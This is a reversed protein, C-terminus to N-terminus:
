RFLSKVEGWSADQADVVEGGFAFVPAAFSGSVPYAKNLRFDDNFDTIALFGPISPVNDVPSLYVMGPGGLYYMGLTVCVAAGNVVPINCGALFNPPSL